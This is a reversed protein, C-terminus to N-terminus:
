GTYASEIGSTIEEVREREQRKSKLKEDSLDVYKIEINKLIKDRHEDIFRENKRQQLQSENM